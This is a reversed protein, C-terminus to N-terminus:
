GALRDDGTGAGGGLEPLTRRELGVAAPTGLIEPAQQFHGVWGSGVYVRIPRDGTQIGAAVLIVVPQQQVRAPLGTAIQIKARVPGPRMADSEGGAVDGVQFRNIRVLRILVITGLVPM